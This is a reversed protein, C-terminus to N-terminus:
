YSWLTPRPQGEVSPLDDLHVYRGEGKQAIGIGTFGM